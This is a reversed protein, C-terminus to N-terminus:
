AYHGLASQLTHSICPCSPSCACSTGSIAKGEKHATQPYSIIQVASLRNDYFLGTVYKSRLEGLSPTEVFFQRKEQEFVDKTTNLHINGIATTDM